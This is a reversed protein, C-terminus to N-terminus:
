PVSRPVRPLRALAILTHQVNQIYVPRRTMGRGTRLDERMDTELSLRWGDAQPPEEYTYQLFLEFRAPSLHLRRCMEDRVDLLSVYRSQARRFVDEYVSVLTQWFREREGNWAPQHLFLERGDPHRIGPLREFRDAAGSARFVATPFLLRGVVSPHWDTYGLLELAQLRPCWPKFTKVTVPQEGPFDPQNHGPPASGFFLRLSAMRM